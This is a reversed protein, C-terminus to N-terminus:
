RRKQAKPKEEPQFIGAKENVMIRIEGPKARENWGGVSLAIMTGNGVIDAYWIWGTSEVEGKKLNKLGM